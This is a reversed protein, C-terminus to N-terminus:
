SSTFTMRKQKIPGIAKKAKSASLRRKRRFNMLRCDIQGDSLGVQGFRPQHHEAETRSPGGLPIKQAIARTRWRVSGRFRQGPAPETTHEKKSFVLPAPFRKSILRRVERPPLRGEWHSQPQNCFVTRLSLTQTSAGDVLCGM